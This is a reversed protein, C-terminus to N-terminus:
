MATQFSISWLPSVRVMTVRNMWCRYGCIGRAPGGLPRGPTATRGPRRNGATM